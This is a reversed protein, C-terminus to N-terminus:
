LWEDDEEDDIMAALIAHSDIARDYVDATIISEFEADIKAKEANQVRDAFALEGVTFVCQLLRGHTIAEGPSVEEKAVLPDWDDLYLGIERAADELDDKRKRILEIDDNPTDDAFM